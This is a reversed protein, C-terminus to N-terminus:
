NPTIYPASSTRSPKYTAIQRTTTTHKPLARFCCMKSAFCLSGLHLPIRNIQRVKVFKLGPFTGLSSKAYTSERAKKRFNGGVIIAGESTSYGKADMLIGDFFIVCALASAGVPLAEQVRKWRDGNCYDNFSEGPEYNLAVNASNAALPSFLLLRVLAETPDVFSFSVTDQPNCMLDQIGQPINTTQTIITLPGSLERHAVAIRQWCTRITKPLLNALRNSSRRCYRVISRAHVTSSGGKACVARMFKLTEILRYDSPMGGWDKFSRVAEIDLSGEEDLGALYEQIAPEQELNAYEMGGNEDENSTEDENIEDNSTDDDIMDAQQADDLPVEEDGHFQLM